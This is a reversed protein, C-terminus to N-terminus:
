MLKIIMCRACLLLNACWNLWSCHIIDLADSGKLSKCVVFGRLACFEQNEAVCWLGKCLGGECFYSNEIESSISARLPKWINFYLTLIFEIWDTKYYTVTYTIRGTTKTACKYSIQIIILSNSYTCSYSVNGILFFFFM